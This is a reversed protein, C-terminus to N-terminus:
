KVTLREASVKYIIVENQTIHFIVQVSMNLDKGISQQGIMYVFTIFIKM